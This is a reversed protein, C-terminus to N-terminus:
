QLYWAGSTGNHYWIFYDGTDVCYCSSGSAIADLIINPKGSVLESSHCQYEKKLVEQIEKPM